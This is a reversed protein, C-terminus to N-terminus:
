FARGDCVFCGDDDCEAHKLARGWDQGPGWFGFGLGRRGSERGDGWRRRGEGGGLISAQGIEQALVFGVGNGRRLVMGLPGLNQGLRLGFKESQGGSNGLDPPSENQGNKFKKRQVRSEVAM